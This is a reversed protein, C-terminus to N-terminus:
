RGTNCDEFTPQQTYIYRLGAYRHDGRKDNAPWTYIYSGVRNNKSVVLTGGIRGPDNVGIGVFLCSATHHTTNARVVGRRGPQSCPRFIYVSTGNFLNGISKTSVRRPNEPELVFYRTPCQDEGRM